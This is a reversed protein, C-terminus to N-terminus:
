TQLVNTYGICTRHAAGHHLGGLLLWRWLLLDETGHVSHLVQASITDAVMGHM